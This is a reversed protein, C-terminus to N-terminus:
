VFPPAVWVSISLESVNGTTEGKEFSHTVYTSYGDFLLGSGMVGQRWQPDRPEAFEAHKFVYQIDDRSQSLSELASDGRGEDFAWYMVPGQNDTCQSM